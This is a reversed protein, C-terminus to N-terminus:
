GKSEPKVEFKIRNKSRSGRSLEGIREDILSSLGSWVPDDNVTAMADVYKVFQRIAEELDRRQSITSAIEADSTDGNGRYAYIADFDVQARTLPVTWDTLNLLAVDAKLSEERLNALLRNISQSEEALPMKVISSATGSASLVKYIREAALQIERHPSHLDSKVCLYLSMLFNDRKKDATTLATTYLSGELRNFGSAFLREKAEITMFQSSQLLESKNTYRVLDMIRRAAIGLASVPLHALSSM